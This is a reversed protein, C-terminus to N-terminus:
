SQPWQGRLLDRYGGAVISKGKALWRRIRKREASEQFAAASFDRVGPSLLVLAAVGALLASGHRLLSRRNLAKM